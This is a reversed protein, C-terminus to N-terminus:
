AKYWDLLSRLTALTTVSDKSHSAVGIATKHRAMSNTRYQVEVNQVLYRRNHKWLTTKTKKAFLYETLLVNYHTTTQTVFLFM